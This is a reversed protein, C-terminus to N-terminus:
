SWEVGQSTDLVRQYPTMWRIDIEDALVAWFDELQEHSYSLFAERSSIGLRQMFRYVNTQEIWKQSEEWVWKSTAPQMTRKSVLLNGGQRSVIGERERGVRTPEQCSAM